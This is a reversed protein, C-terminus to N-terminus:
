QNRLILFHNRLIVSSHVYISILWDKIRIGIFRNVRSLFLVPHQNVNNKSYVLSLVLTETTGSFKINPKTVVSERFISYSDM